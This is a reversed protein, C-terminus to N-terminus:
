IQGEEIIEEEGSSSDDDDSSLGSFPRPPAPAPAPAQSPLSNSLAEAEALTAEREEESTPAPAATSVNVFTFSTNDEFLNIGRNKKFIIDDYATKHNRKLYEMLKACQGKITNLEKEKQKLRKSVTWKQPDRPRKEKIESHPKFPFSKAILSKKKGIQDNCTRISAPATEPSCLNPTQYIDRYGIEKGKHILPKSTIGDPYKAPKKNTLIAWAYTIITRKLKEVDTLNHKWRNQDRATKFEQAILSYKKEDVIQKFENSVDSQGYLYGSRRYDEPDIDFISAPGRRRTAAKITEVTNGGWDVGGIQKRTRRKKKLFYSKRAKQNEKPM